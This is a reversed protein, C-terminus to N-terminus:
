EKCMSAHWTGAPAAQPGPHMTLRAIHAPNILVAGRDRHHAFMGHSSFLQQIFVHQDLPTLPSIAPDSNVDLTLYIKEGNSLEIESSVHVVDPLTRDVQKINAYKERFVQPSVERIMRVNHHFAWDPVYDSIFEVQTVHDTQFATLSNKCGIILQKPEFFKGPVISKLIHGAEYDDKVKFMIIDSGTLHVLIDLEPSMTNMKHAGQM